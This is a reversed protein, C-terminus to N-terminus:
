PAPIVVIVCLFLFISGYYSLVCPSLMTSGGGGACGVRYYATKVIQTNSHYCLRSTVEERQDTSGSLIVSLELIVM